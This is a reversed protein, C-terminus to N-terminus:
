PYVVQILHVEFNKFPQARKVIIRYNDTRKFKIKIAGGDGQAVCNDRSSSPEEGIIESGTFLPLVDDQLFNM